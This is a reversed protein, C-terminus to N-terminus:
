IVSPNYGRGSKNVRNFWKKMDKIDSETIPNTTKLTRRETTINGQTPPTSNCPVEPCSKPCRKGPTVSYPKKGACKCCRKKKPSTTSTSSSDDEGMEQKRKRRGGDKDIGAQKVQRIFDKFSKPKPHNEFVDPNAVMFDQFAEENEEPPRVMWWDRGRGYKFLGWAATLISLWLVENIPQRGSQEEFMGRITDIPSGECCKMKLACCFFGGLVWKGQPTGSPKPPMTGSRLHKACLSENGGASKCAKMNEPTDFKGKQKGRGTDRERLDQRGRKKEGLARDRLSVFERHSKPKPGGEFVDPNAVMFDQFAEETENPPITMWWGEDKGYKYIDWALLLAKIWWETLLQKNENLQRGKPKQVRKIRNAVPNIKSILRQLQQESVVMKQKKNKTYTKRNSKPLGIEESLIQKKFKM